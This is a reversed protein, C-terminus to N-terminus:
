YNDVDTRPHDVDSLSLLSHRVIVAICISNSKIQKRQYIPESKIPQLADFPCIANNPITQVTAYKGQETSMKLQPELWFVKPAPGGLADLPPPPVPLLPQVFLSPGLGGEGGRGLKPGGSSM